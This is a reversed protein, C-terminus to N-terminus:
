PGPPGAVTQAAAPLNINKTGYKWIAGCFFRSVPRDANAFVDTCILALYSLAVRLTSCRPLLSVLSSIIIGAAIDNLRAMFTQVQSLVRTALKLM